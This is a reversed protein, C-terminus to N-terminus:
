NRELSALIEEESQGSEAGGNTGRSSEPPLPIVQPENTPTENKIPNVSQNSATWLPLLIGSISEIDVIRSLQNLSMPWVPPPDALTDDYTHMSAWLLARIDKVRIKGLVPTFKEMAQEPTLKEMAKKNGLGAETVAKQMRIVFDLFSCDSIEEFKDMTVLDFLLTYQQGKITVKTSVQTPDM